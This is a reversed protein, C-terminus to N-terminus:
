GFMDAIAQADFLTDRADSYEWDGGRLRARMVPDTITALNKGYEEATFPNDNYFTQIFVFTREM